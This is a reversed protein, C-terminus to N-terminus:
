PAAVELQPRQLNTDRSQWPSLVSPSREHPLKNGFIQLITPLEEPANQLAVLVVEFIIKGGKEAVLHRGDPAVLSSGSLGFRDDQM